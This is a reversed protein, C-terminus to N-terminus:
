QNEGPPRVERPEGQWGCSPCYKVWRYYHERIRSSGDWLQTDCKPCTEDLPVSMSYQRHIRELEPRPKTTTFGRGHRVLAM